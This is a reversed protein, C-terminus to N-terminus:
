TIHITKTLSALINREIVKKRINAESQLEQYERTKSAEHAEISAKRARYQNIQDEFTSINQKVENMHASAILQNKQTALTKSKEQANNLLNKNLIEISTQEAKKAKDPKLKLKDEKLMTQLKELTQKLIPYGTEETALAEFPNDLYVNIMRLEDPTIGGGGGFTALAQMKIFPKQLHRLTNKLDNSLVEIENTVFNLQDIPGATKLEGTKQELEAIKQEVPLRENKINEIEAHLNTLKNELNQLDNVIQITEQLTKTKVYEKTVFENLTSFTQKTKEYVALFKRRDMIFFPSIKPFWNRVDVETVILTKQAEINYKSLTDYTIQEPSSLKTLREIFIGALKNLARARNFAQTNRKEIEKESNELLSKCVDNLAIIAQNTEDRFKKAQAQVPNLITSTEKELWEKLSTTTFQITETM